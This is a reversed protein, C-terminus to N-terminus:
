TPSSWEPAFNALALVQRSVGELRADSDYVGMVLQNGAMIKTGLESDVPNLADTQLGPDRALSEIRGGIRDARQEDAQAELIGAEGAAVQAAWKQADEQPGAGQEAL